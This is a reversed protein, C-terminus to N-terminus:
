APHKEMLDPATSTPLLLARVTWGGRSDPGAAVQGGYLAARERMGVLGKGQEDTGPTLQPGTDEITVHV